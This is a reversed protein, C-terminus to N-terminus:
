SHLDTQPLLLTITLSRKSSNCFLLIRAWLFSSTHHTPHVLICSLWFIIPASEWFLSNYWVLDNCFSNPNKRCFQPLACNKFNKTLIPPFRRLFSRFYAIKWFKDLARGFISFAHFLHRTWWKPPHKALNKFETRLKPRELDWKKDRSFPCKRCFHRKERSLFCSKSRGFSFVSNFFRAFCGGFHHVLCENWANLMKSRANSSNQFIAYKWDNKRRKGGIKVLLKLFQASGCNQLFFGLEKQLSKTPYLLRNQSDAGM